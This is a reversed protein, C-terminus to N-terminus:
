PAVGGSKKAILAELAALCKPCNGATFIQTLKTRAFSGDHLEITGLSLIRNLWKEQGQNLTEIEEEDLCEFLEWSRGVFGFVPM